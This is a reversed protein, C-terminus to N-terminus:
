FKRFLFSTKQAQAWIGQPEPEVIDPTPAYDADRSNDDVVTPEDDDDDDIVITNALYNLLNLKSRSFHHHSVDRQVALQSPLSLDRLQRGPLVVSNRQPLSLIM